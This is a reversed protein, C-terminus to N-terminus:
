ISDLLDDIIKSKQLKSYNERLKAIFETRFDKHHKEKLRDIYKQLQKDTFIIM